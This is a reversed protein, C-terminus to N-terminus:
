NVNRRAHHRLRNSQIRPAQLLHGSVLLHLRQSSLELLEVRLHIVHSLDVFAATVPSVSTLVIPCYTDFGRGSSMLTPFGSGYTSPLSKSSQSKYTRRLRQCVGEGAQGVWSFAALCDVVATIAVAGCSCCHAVSSYKRVIGM